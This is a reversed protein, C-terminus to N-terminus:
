LLQIEWQTKPVSSEPSENKNEEMQQMLYCKGNCSSEPVKKKICLVEAIYDFNVM